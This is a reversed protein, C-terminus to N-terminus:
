VGCDHPCLYPNSRPYLGPIKSALPFSTVSPNMMSQIDTHLTKLICEFKADIIHCCSCKPFFLVKTTFILRHATSRPIKKKKKICCFGGRSSCFQLKVFFSQTQIDPM